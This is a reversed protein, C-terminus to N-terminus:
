YRPGIWDPYNPMGIFPGGSPAVTVYEYAGLDYATSQPRSTGIIDPNALLITTGANIAPSPSTLTYNSLFSVFNPNGPQPSHTDFGGGQWTSFSETTSAVLAVPATLTAPSALDAPNMTASAGWATAGAPPTGAFASGGLNFCVYDNFQGVSAMAYYPGAALASLSQGGTNTAPNQSGIAGNNWGSNRTINKIWIKSNTLDVAVGIIDLANATQITSPVSGAIFYNGNTATYGASASTFGTTSTLSASSNGIGINTSSSGLTRSYQVEFYWLGTGSAHTNTSRVAGIGSGGIAYDVRLNTQGFWILNYDITASLGALGSALYYAYQTVPLPCIINNQIVWNANVGAPEYIVIASESGGVITNNFINCTGAWAGSDITELFVAYEPTAEPGLSANQLNQIVNNYINYTSGTAVDNVIIGHNNSGGNPHNIFNNYIFLAAAEQQVQIGDCHESPDINNNNLTNNYIRVTCALSNIATFITDTQAPTNNATDILNNRFHITGGTNQAIRAGRGNYGVLISEGSNVLQANAPSIVITTSTSGTAVFTPHVLAADNTLDILAGNNNSNAVIAAPVAAFHLTGNGAATSANTTLTVAATNVHITCNQVIVVGSAVSQIFVNNELGNQITLNQITLNTIGGTVYLAASSSAMTTTTSGDIIVTGNHGADIGATITIPNGSAGSQAPQLVTTSYTTSSSGGSIYLTDGASLSSWVISAFGQWANAWSTGTNTGTGLAGDCYWLTM